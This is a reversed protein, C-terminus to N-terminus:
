ASMEINIQGSFGSNSRHVQENYNSHNGDLAEPQAGVQHMMALLQSKRDSNNLAGGAFAEELHIGQKMMLDFFQKQKKHSNSEYNYILLPKVFEVDAKKVLKSCSVSRVPKGDPGITLPTNDEPVEADEKLNPHAVEEHHSQNVDGEHENHEEKHKNGFLCKQVTAVTAGLFTTTFCVLALSTTVIVSRHEVSEDIRLVLGFAVAGRIIGAYSIFVLDKFSIGSKYGFLEPIKIIGITGIFRGVCCIILMAIFLQWSWDMEIYSFFTIGLYGFVFAEVAYAIM